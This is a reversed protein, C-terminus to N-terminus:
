PLAIVFDMMPYFASVRSVVNADSGKRGLFGRPAVITFCREARAEFCFTKVYLSPSKDEPSSM